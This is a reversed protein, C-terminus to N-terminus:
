IKKDILYLYFYLKAFNKYFIYIMIKPCASVVEKPFYMQVWEGRWDKTNYLIIITYLKKM